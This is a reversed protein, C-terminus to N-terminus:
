GKAKNYLWFALLGFGIIPIAGSLLGLGARAAGEAAAEPTQVLVMNLMDEWVEPTNFM